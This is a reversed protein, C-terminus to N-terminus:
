PEPVHDQVLSPAETFESLVMTAHHSGPLSAAPFPHPPRCLKLGPLSSMLLSPSPLASVQPFTQVAHQWRAHGATVNQSLGHNKGFLLHHPAPLAPLPLLDKKEWM